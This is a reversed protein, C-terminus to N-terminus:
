TLPTPDDTMDLLYELNTKYLKALLILNEVTPQREGREYKSLLSRDIGTEMQVKLQTLKRKKRAKKLNDM